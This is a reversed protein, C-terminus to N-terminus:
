EAAAPEEAEEREEEMKEFCTSCFGIINRGADGIEVPGNYHGESGGAAQATRVCSLHVIKRCLKGQLDSFWNSALPLVMKGTYGVCKVLPDDAVSSECEGCYACPDLPEQVVPEPAPAKSSSGQPRKNKPIEYGARLHLQVTLDMPTDNPPFHNRPCAKCERLHRYFASPQDWAAGPKNCGPCNVSQDHKPNKKNDGAPGADDGELERTLARKRSAVAVSQAIASGAGAIPTPLTDDDEAAVGQAAKSAAEARKRSARNFIPVLQDDALVLGEPKRTLLISSVISDIDELHAARESEESPPEHFKAAYALMHEAAADMDSEKALKIIESRKMKKAAVQSLVGMVKSCDLVAADWVAVSSDRCTPCVLDCDKIPTTLASTGRAIAKEGKSLGICDGHFCFGCAACKVISSPKSSGDAISSPVKEM